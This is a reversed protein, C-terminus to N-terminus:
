SYIAYFKENPNSLFNLKLNETCRSTLYKSVNCGKFLCCRIEDHIKEM